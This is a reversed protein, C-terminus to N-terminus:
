RLGVWPLHQPLLPSVSLRQIPAVMVGEAGPGYEAEAISAAAGAPYRVPTWFSAKSDSLANGTKRGLFWGM